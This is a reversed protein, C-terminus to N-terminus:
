KGLQQGYAALRARRAEAEARDKERSSRLLEQIQREVEALDERHAATWRDVGQRFGAATIRDNGGLEAIIEDTAEQPTVVQRFRNMRNVTRDLRELDGWFRAFSRDSLHSLAARWNGRREDRPRGVPHDVLPDGHRVWRQYHKGCWGRGGRRPHGTCGEVSCTQGTTAM